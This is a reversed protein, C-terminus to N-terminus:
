DAPQVDRARARRLRMIGGFLFSPVLM